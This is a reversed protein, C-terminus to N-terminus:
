KTIGDVGQRISAAAFAFTEFSAEEAAACLERRAMDVYANGIAGGLFDNLLCPRIRPRVNVSVGTSCDGM